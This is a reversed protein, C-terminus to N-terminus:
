RGDRRPGTWDDPGPGDALHDFVIAAALTLIFGAAFGVLGAVIWCCWGM